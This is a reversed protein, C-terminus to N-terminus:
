ELCVCVFQYQSIAARARGVGDHVRRGAAEARESKFTGIKLLMNVRPAPMFSVCVCVCLHLKRM